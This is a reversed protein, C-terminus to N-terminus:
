DGGNVEKCKDELIKKQCAKYCESHFDLGLPNVYMIEFKSYKEDETIENGCWLCNTM